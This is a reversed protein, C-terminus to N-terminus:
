NAFHLRWMSKNQIWDSEPYKNFYFNVLEVLNVRPNSSNKKKLFEDAVQMLIAENVLKAGFKQGM